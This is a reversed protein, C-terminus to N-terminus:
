AHHQRGAAARKELLDADINKLRQEHWETIAARTTARAKELAATREFALDFCAPPRLPRRL